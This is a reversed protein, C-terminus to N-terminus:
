TLDRTGTTNPTCSIAESNPILPISALSAVEAIFITSSYPKGSPYVLSIDSRALAHTLSIPDLNPRPKSKIM